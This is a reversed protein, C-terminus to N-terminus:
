YYVAASFRLIDVGYLDVAFAISHSVQAAWTIGIDANVISCICGEASQSVPFEAPPAFYFQNATLTADQYKEHYTLNIGGIYYRGYVRIIGFPKLYITSFNKRLLSKVQLLSFTTWSSFILM